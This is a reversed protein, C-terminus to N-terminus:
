RSVRRVLLDAMADLDTLDSFAALPLSVGLRDLVTTIIEVRDVSDAGLQRLHKDGTIDSPSVTPVIQRVAAAIEDVIRARDPASSCIV